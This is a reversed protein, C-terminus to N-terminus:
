FFLHAGLLVMDPTESQESIQMTMPKIM